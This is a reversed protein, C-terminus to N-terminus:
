LRLQRAILHLHIVLFDLLKQKKEVRIKQGDAAIRAMDFFDGGLMFLPLVM